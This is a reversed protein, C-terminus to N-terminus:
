LAIPVVQTQCMFPRDLDLIQSAGLVDHDRQVAKGVDLITELEPLPKISGQRQRRRLANRLWVGKGEAREPGVGYLVLQAAVVEKRATGLNGAARKVITAAQHTQRHRDPPLLLVRRMGLLRPRHEHLDLFDGRPDVEVLRPPYHDLQGVVSVVSMWLRLFRM